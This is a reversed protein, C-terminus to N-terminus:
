CSCSRQIYMGWQNKSAFAIIISTNRCFQLVMGNGENNIASANTISIDSCSELSIGHLMNNSAYVNSITPANCSYLAIGYAHNNTVSIDTISTNRCSTFVVGSGNNNAASISVISTNRCSTFNMGSGSNNVASINVININNCFLLKIGTEKNGSSITSTISVSDSKMALLGSHEFMSDKIQVNQTYQLMLGYLLNSVHSKDVYLHNTEYAMIGINCGNMDLGAKVSYIDIELHINTSQEVRIVSVNVSSIAVSTGIINVDSVNILKIVSCDELPLDSLLARVRASENSCQYNSWCSFQAVIQTYEDSRLRDSIGKLTVNHVNRIELPRELVHKGPLFTFVVNSQIYHSSNNIYQNLTLCPQGPCSTNTPETPRVYYETAGCQSIVTALLLLLHCMCCQVM